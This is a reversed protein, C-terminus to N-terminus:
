IEDALKYDEKRSSEIITITKALARRNGALLDEILNKIDSV